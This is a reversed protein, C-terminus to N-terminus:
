PTLINTEGSAQPLSTNQIHDPKLFSGINVKDAKISAPLAELAEVFTKFNNTNM